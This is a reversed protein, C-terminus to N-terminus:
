TADSTGKRSRIELKLWDTAQPTIYVCDDLHECIAEREAEIAEHIARENMQRAEALKTLVYLLSDGRGGGMKMAIGYMATERADLFLLLEPRM